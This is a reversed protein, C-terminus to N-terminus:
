AKRRGTWALWAAVALLALGAYAKLPLLFPLGADALAGYEERPELLGGWAAAIAGLALVAGARGREAALAFGAVLAPLLFVGYHEWAKPTLLVGLVLTTGLQLAYLPEGRRSRPLLAALSFVIALGFLVGRVLPLSEPSPALVLAAQALGHNRPEVSAVANHTSVQRWWGEWASPGGPAVAFLTAAGLLLGLLAKGERRLGLFLVPFALFPKWLAAPALVLGALFPRERVLLLLGGMTLLLLLDNSQGTMLGYALPFYFAALVLGFGLLRGQERRDRGAARALLLLSLLAAALSVLFWTRRAATWSLSSLPAYLGPVWPPYIFNLVPDGPGAPGHVGLAKARRDVVPDDYVRLDGEAVMRGAVFAPALDLGQRPHLFARGAQYLGHVLAFAALFLVAARRASESRFAGSSTM